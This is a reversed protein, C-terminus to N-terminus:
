PAYLSELVSWFEPFSKEVCEHGRILVGPVKLGAVAFSMAIRHDNYTEIEAGQPQGGTIALGNETCAATIGMKGLEAAVAALRDSEKGRLHAVNRIHTTGSAFAAVVALTPVTDPMDAMDVEIGSLPGGTVAIGDPKHSVKCGMTGLVEALRVDGQCSNKNTGLVKITRGALAAAAWFYGAQSCDPEVTVDGARYIQNGKVAFRRYGDREVSVGFRAIIDVTMDIYPRSVPGQTVRIGLAKRSYPAILLLASLYQSSLSCDLEVQGGDFGGGKVAVPPCGNRALSVAEVGIQGLGDLLDQIPREHMRPSGSFTCAGKGLAALAILLRMSTGSNALYIPQNPLMLLGGQGFVTIRSGQNETRIGMQNLAALTLHTDESHLPNHIVCPGDCLAAAILSRHTYSKSGPVNVACDSIPQTKIEIM